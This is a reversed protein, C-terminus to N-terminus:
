YKISVNPVTGAHIALVVKKADEESLGVAMIGEKAATRIASIHKTNAERQRTAEAAAEVKERQKRQEDERAKQEAAAKEEAAVKAAFATEREVREAAQKKENAAHEAAIKAQLEANEKQIRAREASEKAETIEREAKEASEKAALEAAETAEKAALEAAEKIRREEAEKRKAEEAIRVSEAVKEAALREVEVRKAEAAAEKEELEKERIWISHDYYAKDEDEALKAAKLEAAERAEEVAEWDTLPKRIRDRTEDCEAVLKRREANVLEIEARKTSNLDKGAEDLRAKFSSVKRAVSAIEKRGKVTTLDPVFAKEMDRLKQLQAEVGGDVYVTIAQEKTVEPIVLANTM